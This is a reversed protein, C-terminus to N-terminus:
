RWHDSYFLYREVEHNNNGVNNCGNLYIDILCSCCHFWTHFAYEMYLINMKSINGYINTGYVRRIM